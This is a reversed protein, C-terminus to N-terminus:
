MQSALKNRITPQAVRQPQASVHQVDLQYVKLKPCGPRCEYKHWSFNSTQMPETLFPRLKQRQIYKRSKALNFLAPLGKTIDYKKSPLLNQTCGSQSIDVLGTLSSCDILKARTRISAHRHCLFQNYCCQIGLICPRVAMCSSSPLSLSMMVWTDSADAKPLTTMPSNGGM